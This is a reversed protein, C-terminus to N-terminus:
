PLRRQLRGHWGPRHRYRGGCGCIGPATKNPDAPCLDNCDATGDSHQRYRGRRTRVGPAIKNPDASCLDNCDATGDSDSDTDAM